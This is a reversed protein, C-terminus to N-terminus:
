QPMYGRLTTVLLKAAVAIVLGIIAYAIASKGQEAQRPSSGASMIMIAGVVVFFVAISGAVAVIATTAQDFMQGFGEM